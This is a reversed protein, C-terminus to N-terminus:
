SYLVPNIGARMRAAHEGGTSTAAAFVLEPGGPRVPKPGIESEPINYFRGDFRVPHTGWVSRMARLHEEFGAGRRKPSMGAASFAQPVWGQGFGAILRGGSLLDLTALRRALTVPNQFLTGIVSTGLRIRNTRAAVYALTEIAECQHASGPPMFISIGGGFDVPQQVPRLLGDSMWVSALGMREAEEAVRLITAPTTQDGAMPLHLGLQM